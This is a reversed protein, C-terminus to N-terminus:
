TGQEQREDWDIFVIQYPIDHDRFYRMWRLQNKQPKDGPGKVELLRYGGAAPFHILDPLGSRNNRRDALIREFIVM